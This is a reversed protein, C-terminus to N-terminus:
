QISGDLVADVALERGAAVPDQELSAYKRVASIPRVVIQRTSLLKNILTEAMGLEFSPDRREAALPKFPLVAISKIASPGAPPNPDGTIWFSFLAIVSAAVAVFGAWAFGRRPLFNEYGTEKKQEVDPAREERALAPEPQVIQSQPPELDVAAVENSQPRQKIEVDAVFRYGRTPVTEIYRAQKSGDGLAKRLQAIVRTMANETVFAEKWVADLLERKQILRGQNQILFILVEFAKPELRLPADAKFVEFTDLDVRVDDFQYILSKREM